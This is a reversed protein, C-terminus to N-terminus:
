DLDEDDDEDDEDTANSKGGTSSSAQDIVSQPALAVLQDMQDQTIGPVNKQIDAILAAYQDPNAQIYEEIQEM